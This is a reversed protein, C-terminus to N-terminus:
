KDGNMMGGLGFGLGREMHGGFGGMGMGQGQGQNLGLETMIAHAQGQLKYAEVYRAFNSANIKALVPANSNEAKVAAVWSDYSGAELAASVAKEKATREAQDAKMQKHKTVLSNFNGSTVESLLKSNADLSKMATVWADYDGAELATEVAARKTEMEKKQADTLPAPREKTGKGLGRGSHASQANSDSSSQSSAASVTSAALAGSSILGLVALTLLGKLLNKKKKM